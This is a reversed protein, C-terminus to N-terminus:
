HNFVEDSVLEEVPPQVPVELKQPAFFRNLKRLFTLM